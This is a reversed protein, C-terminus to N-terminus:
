DEFNYYNSLWEVSELEKIKDTIRKKEAIELGKLDSLDNLLETVSDIFKCNVVQAQNYDNMTLSLLRM